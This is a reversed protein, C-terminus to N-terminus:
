AAPQPAAEMPAEAAKAARKAEVKKLSTIYGAVKNRLKKTKFIMVQSAARKNEEFDTTFMDPYRSLLDRATRKVVETRVKGM